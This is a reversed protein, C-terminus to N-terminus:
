HRSAASSSSQDNLAVLFSKTDLRLVDAVKADEGAFIQEHSADDSHQQGSSCRSM